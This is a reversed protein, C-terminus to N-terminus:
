PGINSGIERIIVCTVFDFSTKKNLRKNKIYVERLKRFNNEM